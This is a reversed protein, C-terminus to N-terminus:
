EYVEKLKDPNIATQQQIATVPTLLTLQSSRVEADQGVEFSWVLKQTSPAWVKVLGGMDAIAV